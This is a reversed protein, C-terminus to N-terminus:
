PATSPWGACRASRCCASSAYDTVCRHVHANIFEAASCGTEIIANVPNSSTVSHLVSCCHQGLGRGWVSSTTVMCPGFMCAHGSCSPAGAIRETLLLAPESLLVCCGRM